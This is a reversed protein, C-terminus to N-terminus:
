EIEFFGHGDEGVLSEEDGLKLRCATLFPGDALVKETRDDRAVTGQKLVLLRDTFAITELDHEVVIVTKGRRHLKELAERVKQKGAGDLGSMVEDLLLIPPDLALLAALAILHKEGGSLHYPNAQRLDQIGLFDLVEDIRQRIQGPPLCINELAFAIEEEVTPSFLQTDPDQFVLGVELALRAVPHAGTDKGRVFVKGSMIGGRSHPIIGNLCFCLTSKGCGSMGTVAVMEGQGVRFNVDKLVDPGVPGYRYTLGQVVVAEM